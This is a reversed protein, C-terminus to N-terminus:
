GSAYIDELGVFFVGLVLVLGIDKSGLALFDEALNKTDLRVLGAMVKQILTAFDSKSNIHNREFLRQIFHMSLTLGDYLGLNDTQNYASRAEVFEMRMVACTRSKERLEVEYPSVKTVDLFWLTRRKSNSKEMGVVMPSYVYKMNDFLLTKSTLRLRSPFQGAKSATERRTV